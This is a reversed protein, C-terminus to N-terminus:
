SLTTLAASATQTMASAKDRFAADPHIQFMMNALYNGINIQRIAEDYPVLTNEVTPQSSTQAASGLVLLFTVFVAFSLRSMSVGKCVEAMPKLRIFRCITLRGPSKKQPETPVCAGRKVYWM